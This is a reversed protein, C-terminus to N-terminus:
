PSADKVEYIFVDAQVDYTDVPAPATLQISTPTADLTYDWTTDPGTLTLQATAGPGDATNQTDTLYVDGSDDIFVGFTLDDNSMAVVVDASYTSVTVRIGMLVFKGSSVGTKSLDLLTTDEGVSDATQCLNVPTADGGGKLRTAAGQFYSQNRLDVVVTNSQDTEDTQESIDVSVLEVSRAHYAVGNRDYILLSDLTKGSPSQQHRNSGPNNM